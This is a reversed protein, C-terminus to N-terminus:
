PPDYGGRCWPGCRCIRWTGKAAGRLPGYKEVALIFYESCSPTFRCVSPLAPRLCLQYFRVGGILLATACRRLWALMRRTM